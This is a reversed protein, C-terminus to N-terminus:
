WLVECLGRHTTQALRRSGWQIASEVAKNSSRGSCRGSSLSAVCNSM